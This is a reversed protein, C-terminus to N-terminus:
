TLSQCSMTSRACRTTQEEWMGAGVAPEPSSLCYRMDPAGSDRGAGSCGRGLCSTPERSPMQGPSQQVPAAQKNQQVPSTVAPSCPHSAAKMHASYGSCPLTHRRHMPQQQTTAASTPPAAHQSNCSQLMPRKPSCVSAASASGM